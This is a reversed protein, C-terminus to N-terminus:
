NFYYLLNILFQGNSISKFEYLHNLSLTTIVSEDEYSITTTDSNRITPYLTMTYQMRLALHRNLFTEIGIGGLVGTINKKIVHHYPEGIYYSGDNRLVRGSADIQGRFETNSAGVLLFSQVTPLPLWGLKIASTLTYHADFSVKSVDQSTIISTPTTDLFTTSSSSNNIHVPNYFAGIDLGLYYRTRCRFLFVKGIGGLVAATSNYSGIDTFSHDIIHSLPRNLNIYDRFHYHLSTQNVGIGAGIYIGNFLDADCNCNATISVTFLSVICLSMIKLVLKWIKQSQTFIM